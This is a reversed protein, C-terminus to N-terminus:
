NLYQESRNKREFNSKLRSLLHHIDDNFKDNLPLIKSMQIGFIDKIFDMYKSQSRATILQEYVLFHYIYSYKAVPSQDDLNYEMQLYCFLDYSTEKKFIQLHKSSVSTGNVPLGSGNSKEIKMGEGSEKVSANTEPLENKKGINMTERIEQEMDELESYFITWLISEECVKQANILACEVHDVENYVQDFGPFRIIEVKFISTDDPILPIHFPLGSSEKKYEIELHQRYLDVAYLAKVAMERIKKKAKKRESQIFKLKTQTTKRFALELRFPILKESCTRAISRSREEDLDDFTIQIKEIIEM